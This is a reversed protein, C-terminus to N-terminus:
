YPVCAAQAWCGDEGKSSLYRCSAMTHPSCHQVSSVVAASLAPLWAGVRSVRVVFRRNRFWLCRVSLVVCENGSIEHASCLCGPAAVIHMQTIQRKIIDITRKRLISGVEFQTLFCPAIPITKLFITGKQRNGLLFKFNTM